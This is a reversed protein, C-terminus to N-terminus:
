EAKNINKGIEELSIMREEELNTVIVFVEGDNQAFALYRWTIRLGTKDTSEPLELQTVPIKIKRHVSFLTVTENVGMADNPDSPMLSLLIWAKDETIDMVTFVSDKDALLVDRSSDAYLVYVTDYNKGGAFIDAIEDSDNASRGAHAISVALLITYITKSLFSM